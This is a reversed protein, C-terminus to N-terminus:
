HNIRVQYFYSVYIFCSVTRESKQNNRTYYAKIIQHFVSYYKKLPVLM